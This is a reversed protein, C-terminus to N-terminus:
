AVSRKYAWEPMDIETVIDETYGPWVGSTSCEVYKDLASRIEDYAVAIANESVTVATTIYPTCKEVFLFVFQRAIMGAQRLAHLYWAAQRHYGYDYIHKAIAYPSADTTSKLDIATLGFGPLSALADIRAKCPIDGREHWYVSCEAQWDAASMASKLLPHVSAACSMASCTEWLEANVLTIGLEVAEAAEERGAKTNGAYQRKRYQVSVTAPELTMAHFVSGLLMATSQEHDTGDMADMAAMFRAPCKLLEDMSSKSLARTAHYARADDHVFQVSNETSM